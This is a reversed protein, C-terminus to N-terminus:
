TSRGEAKAIAKRLDVCGSHTEPDGGGVEVAISLMSLANRAAKFLDPAAVILHANAMPMDTPEGSLVVRVLVNAIDRDIGVSGTHEMSRAIGGGVIRIKGNKQHRLDILRWPGPTHHYVSM